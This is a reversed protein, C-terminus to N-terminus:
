AYSKRARAMQCSGFGLYSHTGWPSHISSALVGGDQNRVTVPDDSFDTM